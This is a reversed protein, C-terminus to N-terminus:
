QAELSVRESTSEITNGTFNHFRVQMTSFDALAICPSQADYLTGPNIVTLHDFHRVMRRHTHGGIVFRFERKEILRHLEDKFQLAYGYDDPTLRQMDNDGLGHCLLLKGSVTEFTQTSPLSKIFSKSKENIEDSRTAAPLDRMIGQMLWRDHNGRVVAVGAQELLQCCRNVDGSGDAIDGVCLIRQVGAQQMFELAAELREAEAHVDGILGINSLM